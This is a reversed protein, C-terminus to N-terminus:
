LMESDCEQLTIQQIEFESLSLGSSIWSSLLENPEPALCKHDKDATFLPSLFCLHQRHSHFLQALTSCETEQPFIGILPLAEYLKFTCRGFCGSDASSLVGGVAGLFYNGTATHYVPRVFHILDMDLSANWMRYGCCLFLTSVLKRYQPCTFYRATSYLSCLKRSGVEYKSVLPSLQQKPITYISEQYKEPINITGGNSDHIVAAIDIISDADDESIDPPGIYINTPIHRISYIYQNHM